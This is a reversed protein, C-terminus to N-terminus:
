EPDPVPEGQRRLSELYEPQRWPLTHVIPQARYNRTYARDGSQSAEKTRKDIEECLPLAEAFALDLIHKFAKLEDARLNTLILPVKKQNGGSGTFLEVVLEPVDDFVLAKSLLNKKVVVHYPSTNADWAIRSPGFEGPGPLNTPEGAAIAREREDTYSDFRNRNFQRRHPSAM